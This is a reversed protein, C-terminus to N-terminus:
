LTKFPKTQKEVTQVTLTANYLSKMEDVLKKVEETIKLQRNTLIRTEHPFVHAKLLKTM